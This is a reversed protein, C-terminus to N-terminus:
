ADELLRDAQARAEVTVAAGSLMRAIEERRAEGDLPTVTTSVTDGAERKEVRYHRDGLAAVQPSREWKARSRGKASQKM